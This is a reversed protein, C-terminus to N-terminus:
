CKSTNANTRECLGYKQLITTFQQKYIEYDDPNIGLILDRFQHFIKGQLPKSFYDAIMQETPCYQIKVEKNQVRDWIFFYRIHIHKSGKGCSMRGNNKILISSQNDQLLIDEKSSGGQEIRFYRYWIAKPLKEGVTVIECETSSLTNLKQKTSSSFVAGKGETAFEGSHGKMDAHVAYAGDLYISTSEGNTKLILPLHKTHQMYMMTHRLKSYDNKNPGKVRTCCFGVGLKMDPRGRTLFLSKATITHFLEMKEKSIVPLNTDSATDFLNIPAATAKEGIMDPAFEHLFNILKQIFDYM